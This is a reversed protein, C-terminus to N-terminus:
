FPMMNCKTHRIAFLNLRTQICLPDGVNELDIGSPNRLDENMIGIAMLDFQRHHTIWRDAVFRVSGSLEFALM